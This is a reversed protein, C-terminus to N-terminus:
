PRHYRAFHADIAAWTEPDVHRTIGTQKLWEQPYGCAYYAYVTARAWQPSSHMKGWHRAHKAYAMPGILLGDVVVPDREYQWVEDPTFRDAAFYAYGPTVLTPDAIIGDPFEIWAHEFTIPACDMVAQGEVYLADIPLLGDEIGRILSERANWYCHMPRPEYEAALERSLDLLKGADSFWFRELEV